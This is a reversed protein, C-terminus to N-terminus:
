NGPRATPQAHCVSLIIIGVSGAIIGWYDLPTTFSPLGLTTETVHQVLAIFAEPYM